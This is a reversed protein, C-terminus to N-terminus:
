SFDLSHSTNLLTTRHLSVWFDRKVRVAKNDVEVDPANAYHDFTYTPERKRAYEVLGPFHTKCLLGLIGNVHRALGGGSVVMWNRCLHNLFFINTEVEIKLM